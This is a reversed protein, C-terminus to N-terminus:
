LMRIEGSFCLFKGKHLTKRPCGEYALTYADFNNDTKSIYGKDCISDKKNRVFCVKPLNKSEIKFSDASGFWIIKWRNTFFPSGFRGKKISKNLYEAEWNKYDPNIMISTQIRDIYIDEKVILIVDINLAYQQKSKIIWKLSVPFNVYDGKIVMYENNSNEITWVIDQPDHWFKKFISSYLGFGKTIEKERFYIKFANSDFAFKFNDGIKIEKKIEPIGEIEKKYDEINNVIYFSLIKVLTKDQSSPIVYYIFDIYKEKHIHVQSLFGKYTIQPICIFYRTEENTKIGKCFEYSNKLVLRRSIGKFLKFDGDDFYYFLPTYPFTSKIEILKIDNVREPYLDFMIDGSINRTIKVDIKFTDEPWELSITNEDKLTKVCKDMTLVNNNQLTISLKINSLENYIKHRVYLFFIENNKTLPNYIAFRKYLKFQAKEFYNEFVIFKQPYLEKVRKFRERYPLIEKSLVADENKIYSNNIILFNADYINFNDISDSLFTKDPTYDLSYRLLSDGSEECRHINHLGRQLMYYDLRQALFLVFPEKEWDYVFCATPLIGKKSANYLINIVEKLPNDPYPLSWAIGSHSHTDYYSLNIKNNFIMKKYFFDLWAKSYSIGHYQILSFLIFSIAILKFIYKRKFFSYVGYSIILAEPIVLSLFYRAELHPHRTLPFIFLPGLLYLTFSLKVEKNLPSTVFIIFTFIFFAFVMGGLQANIILLIAENVRGLFDKQIYGWSLGPYSVPYQIPAEGWLNFKPEKISWIFLYPYLFYFAIILMTGLILNFFIKKSEKRKISQLFYYIIPLSSFTYFGSKSYGGVFLLVILILLYRFNTTDNMKKIFYLFWVFVGLLAMDSNFFRSHVGFAPILMLSVCSLIGSTNFFLRESKSIGMLILVICLINNLLSIHYSYNNFIKYFITATSNFFPPTNASFDFFANKYDNTECLRISEALHRGEDPGQVFKNASWWIINNLIVFLVIVIIQNRRYSFFPLLHNM